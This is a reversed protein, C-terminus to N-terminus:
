CNLSDQNLLRCITLLSSNYFRSTNCTYEKYPEARPRLNDRLPANLPFMDAHKLNRVCKKGFNLAATVRRDSLTEQGLRKLASNYSRYYPGLIVAFARKQCNEIQDSQEVALRSFFFPSAFELTSRGKQQWITLLQKISAGMERFRMLIWLKKMAKKTIMDVHSSFKLDSQLKIGLLKTEYVVDLEDEGPLNLRPIFDHNKTFNFAM